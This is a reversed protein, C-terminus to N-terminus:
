GNRTENGEAAPVREQRYVEQVITRPRDKIEELLRKVYLGIVGTFLANLSFFFVITAMLSPWGSQMPGTMASIVVAFGFLFGFGALVLSAVFLLELPRGSFSTVLLLLLSLRRGVSYTTPSTSAKEFAFPVQRYGTIVALPVFVPNRDRFRLLSDVYRRSMVRMTSVNRPMKVESLLGFVCYFLDGSVREFRNGKRSKQVGYVCDAREGKMLELMPGISEPPEELDSDLLFIVDGRAHEIATFMARHHGFNRSLQVLVVRPDRDALDRVIEASRDPSGDDVVVIEVDDALISAAAAVREVFDVITAESRYATTVVSLLRPRAHPSTAAGAKGPNERDAASTM